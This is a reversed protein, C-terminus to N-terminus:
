GIGSGSGKLIKKNKKENEKKKKVNKKKKMDFCWAVEKM